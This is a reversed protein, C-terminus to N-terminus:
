RCPGCAALTHSPDAHQGAGAFAVRLRRRPQSCEPLTELPETPDVPAINLDIDSPAPGIKVPDFRKGPFQDRDLRVNKDRM